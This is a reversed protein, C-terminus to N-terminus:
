KEEESKIEEAERSQVQKPVSVIMESDDGVVLTYPLAKVKSNQGIISDAIRIGEISAGENVITNEIAANDVEADDAISTYPGIISKRVTARKSIYVPPLLINDKFVVPNRNKSHKELIHRNTELLAENTGCDFWNEINFTTLKAGWEVMKQFAHTLQYEGRFSINNEILYDIAKFMLKYNRIFNVGIIVESRRIFDPKEILRKIYEGDKEVIGYRRPDDVIKTGIAGDFKTKFANSIEGEFLTDGYVILVPDHIYEKAVGIAHGLGLRQKQEVFTFRVKPYAASLDTEIKEGFYGIIVVIDNIGQEIIADIIHHIIPKGGVSVLAKPKNHTQPKLRTGAGAAPIIAQIKETKTM